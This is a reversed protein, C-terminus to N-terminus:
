PTLPLTVSIRTGGGPRRGVVVEGNLSLVRERIGLLGFSQPRPRAPDFGGGNDDVLLACRGAVGSLSVAAESADAHRAVNTLSEQVIRFVAIAQQETLRNEELTLTLSCDIGSHQRLEDVLWELASGIGLDLVSPRLTTAVNRVVGITRDVLATMSHVQENLGPVDAGFRVRLLAAQMRLATLSQGLEDHLERAIHKREDERASERHAGLERLQAHSAALDREAQKHATVDRGIALVGTIAGDAGREAAMRIAVDAPLGGNPFRLGVEAPKGSDIVSQLIAEFQSLPLDAGWDQPLMRGLAQGPELRLAREYAPNVYVRHLALDYRVVADPLNEGLTRFKTESARLEATRVAVQRELNDRYHQLGREAERREHNESALLANQSTLRAQMAALRLHTTVRALIEEAQLPKTVYDVAGARFGTVKDATDDLATMFIVPVTAIPAASAKLRRCVEFGDIGPLMVDLLILDPPAFAVRRLAEDGSQAVSLRLGHQELMDVAVALNAPTDDVILITRDHLDPPMTM